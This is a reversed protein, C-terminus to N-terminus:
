LLYPIAPSGSPQATPFTRVLCALDAGLCTRSRQKQFMCMKQNSEAKSHLSQDKLLTHTVPLLM